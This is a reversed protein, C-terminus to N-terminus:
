SSKEYGRRRLIEERAEDGEFAVALLHWKEADAPRAARRHQEAWAYMEDELYRHQLHIDLIAEGGDEPHVAGVLKGSDDEWLRVDAQWTQSNVSAGCQWWDLRGLGWNFASSSLQYNEILLERMRQYDEQGRYARSKIPM